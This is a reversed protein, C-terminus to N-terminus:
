RGRRASWVAGGALVSVLPLIALVVWGIMSLQEQSLTLRRIASPRGVASMREDDGVLWRSVNVAFTANGPGDGILEDTLVDADGIAVLRAPARGALSIAAGVTIPGVDDTGEDYKSPREEGRETWGTRSTVLLDNAEIGDRRALSLPAALAVITVTNADVLEETVAHRGYRLVPRDEYPFVRVQDLVVGSPVTVGAVELFRPVFGGPDVFYGVSGGRALYASVAADEEPTLPATPGVVLLADADGPIAPAGQQERDRLLDLGAVEYGQNELLTALGSLGEAGGGELKKEGHGELVYVHRAREALVQSIARAVASEGLFELERGDGKGRGRFIERDILDIRQTGGQVVITGYRTVGLAEATLRDGDFDVFRTTVHVSRYELERLLDKVMRDRFVAEQDKRQSSFATVTVARDAADVAELVGYTEPQLTAVADASLDWRIRWHGALDVSLVAITVVFVTVFAANTGTALRRRWHMREQTVAM